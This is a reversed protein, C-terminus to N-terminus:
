ASPCAVRVASARSPRVTRLRDDTLFREIGVLSDGRVALRMRYGAFGNRWVVIVSDGRLPAWGSYRQRHEREASDPRLTPLEIVRGESGLRPEPHRQPTLALVPTEDPPYGFYARDFRFCRTSDAAGQASVLAPLCVLSLAPLYRVTRM